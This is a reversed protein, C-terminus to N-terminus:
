RRRSPKHQEPDIGDLMLYSRADDWDSASTRKGWYTRLAARHDPTLEVKKKKVRRASSGTAEAQLDREPIELSDHKLHDWRVKYVASGHPLGRRAGIEEDGVRGERAVITGRIDGYGEANYEPYRQLFWASYQVREGPSFVWHGSEVARSGGGSDKRRFYEKTAGVLAVAAVVFWTGNTQSGFSPRARSGHRAFSGEPQQHEQGRISPGGAVYSRGECPVNPVLMTSEVQVNMASCRGRVAGGLCPVGPGCASAPLAFQAVEVETPRVVMNRCTGCKKQRGSAKLLDQSNFDQDDALSPM